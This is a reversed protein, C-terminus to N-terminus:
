SGGLREFFAKVGSFFNKTKGKIGQTNIYITNHEQAPEANASQRTYYYAAMSKRTIGPPTKLPNPHGHYSKENTEFMVMRNYTPAIKEIMEKKEMDWLQLHGEYETRWDKNMYILINLRRHLKTEPHVNYDVHVDLFAGTSSQHLGGGFLKEDPILNEIGTIYEIDQLFMKSNLEKFVDLFVSGAAFNRQQFKNKQNIYTTGDWIGQDVSPYNTLLIEAQEPKLFDEIILYRFPKKSNWQSKLDDRENRVRHIDIYKM